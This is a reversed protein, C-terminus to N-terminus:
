HRGDIVRRCEERWSEFGEADLQVEMEPQDGLKASM